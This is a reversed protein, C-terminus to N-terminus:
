GRRRRKQFVLRWYNKGSLRSDRSVQERENQLKALKLRDRLPKFVGRAKLLVRLDYRPRDM